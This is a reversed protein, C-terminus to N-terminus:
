KRNRQEAVIASRVVDITMTPAINYRPRLNRAPQTLQYVEVLDRWTYSQTFRGYM